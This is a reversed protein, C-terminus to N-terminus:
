NIVYVKYCFYDRLDTQVYFTYWGNELNDVTFSNDAAPEIVTGRTKMQASTYSGKAYRAYAKGSFNYLSLTVKNADSEIRGSSDPFSGNVLLMTDFLGVLTVNRDVKTENGVADKVTYTIKYPATRDFKNASIDKYNFNGYDVVIKNTLDTVNEGDVDYAIVGDLLSSETYKTGANPNEFFMLDDTGEIVPPVKDIFYIGVGYQVFKKNQRELNFMYSGNEDYLMSHKTDYENENSGVFRTPKNTEVTVTVDQNTPQYIDDAANYGAEDGIQDISYSTKKLEGSEDFYSYAWSIQTVKPAEKDIANIELEIAQSNGIADYVTLKYTGNECFEYEAESAKRAMGYYVVNLDDLSRYIDLPQGSEDKQQEFTVKVSMLDESVVANAVLTPATRNINNVTVITCGENGYEDEFYAEVSGNEKFRIISQSSDIVLDSANTGAVPVVKTLTVDSETYYLKAAVTQTTYQDTSLVIKYASPATTDINNVGFTKYSTNGHIDKAEITYIGSTDLSGTFGSIYNGNEDQIETGKTMTTVTESGKLSLKAEAVSSKDTLTVTIPVPQNTKTTKDFDYEISPGAGDFNAYEATIEYIYGYRDSIVFKFSNEFDTLKKEFSKMNNKVYLDRDTGNFTPEIKATINNYFQGDVVEQEVGNLDTTYYKLEFHGNEGIEIPDDIINTVDCLEESVLGVTNTVRVFIHGNENFTCEYTNSLPVESFEAYESNWVGNEDYIPSVEVKAIGSNIANEAETYMEDADDNEGYETDKEGALEPDSFVFYVTVPDKTKASYSYEEEIEPGSTDKINIDFVENYTDSNGDITVTESCSIIVLNSNGFLSYVLKTYNLDTEDSKECLSLELDTGVCGEAPHLIQEYDENSEVVAFYVYNDLMADISDLKEWHSMDTDYIYCWNEYDFESETRYYSIQPKFDANFTVMDETISLTKSRMRGCEDVFYITYDGYDTVTMQATTNFDGIGDSYSTYTGFSLKNDIIEYVKDEYEEDTLGDEREPMLEQPLVYVPVNFQLYILARSGVKDSPIEYNLFEPEADKIYFSRAGIVEKTSNGLRDSASMVLAYGGTEAGRVVLSYEIDKEGNQHTNYVYKNAVAIQTHSSEEQGALLEDIEEASPTATLGEDIKEETNGPEPTSFGDDYEWPIIDFSITDEVVDKVYFSISKDSREGSQIGGAWYGGWEPADKDICNVDIPVYTKNVPVIEDNITISDYVELSVIDNREFEITYTVEDGSIECEDLLKAYLANYLSVKLNEPSTFNDKLTVIAKVTENTDDLTDYSVKYQPAEDDYFVTFEVKTVLEPSIIESDDSIDTAAFELYIKNYGENLVTPAKINYQLDKESINGLKTWETYNVADDSVRYKLVQNSDFYRSCELVEYANLYIDYDRGNTYYVDDQERTVIGSGSATFFEDKVSPKGNRISFISSISETEMGNQDTAIVKVKYAGSKEPQVSVETKVTPTGAAAEIFDQGEVDSGDAYLLKYKISSVISQDVAEISIIKTDSPVGSKPMVSLTPAANDFVFNASYYQTDNSYNATVRYELKYEGNLTGISQASSGPNKAITYRVWPTTQKGNTWRYDINNYSETKFVINYNPRYPSSDDVVLDCGTNAPSVLSLPIKYYSSGNESYSSNGADDTTYYYIYGSFSEGANLKLLAVSSSAASQSITYWQGVSTDYTGSVDVSQNRDPVSQNGRVFCYHVKGTGSIDNLDFSFKKSITYNDYDVEDNGATCNVTPAKKDLKVNITKEVPNNAYDTGTVKLKFDGEINEKPTIEYVTTEAHGAKYIYDSVKQYKTKLAHAKNNSDLLSFSFTNSSRQYYIEEDTAIMLKQAQKYDSLASVSQGSENKFNISVTKTDVKYQSIKKTLDDAKYTQNSYVANMNSLSLTLGVGNSDYNDPATFSMELTNSGSIRRVSSPTVYADAKKTYDDYYLKIDMNNSSKNWNSAIYNCITGADYHSMAKIPVQIKITKNTNNFFYQDRFPSYANSVVKINDTDYMFEKRIVRYTKNYTNGKDVKSNFKLSTDIKVDCIDNSAMKELLKSTSFSYGVTFGDSNTKDNLDFDGASIKISNKGKESNLTYGFSPAFDYSLPNYTNFFQDTVNQNWSIDVNDGTKTDKDYYVTKSFDNINGANDISRKTVDTIDYTLTDQSSGKEVWRTRGTPTFKKSKGNPLSFKYWAICMGDKGHNKIGVHYIQWPQINLNVTYSKQSNKEFDNHKKTDIKRETWKQNGAADYYRVFCYIDSDTGAYKDGAVKVEITYNYSDSINVNASISPIYCVLMSLIVILSMLCKLGWRKKNLITGM